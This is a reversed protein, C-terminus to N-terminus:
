AWFNSIAYDPPKSLNNSGTKSHLRKSSRPCVTTLSLKTSKKRIMDRRESPSM